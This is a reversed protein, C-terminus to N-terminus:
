TIRILFALSYSECLRTSDERISRVQCVIVVSFVANVSRDKRRHKRVMLKRGFLRSFRSFDLNSLLIMSSYVSQYINQSLLKNNNNFKLISYTDNEVITRIPYMTHTNITKLNIFFFNELVLINMLRLLPSLGLMILIAPKQTKIAKTNKIGLYVFAGNLSISSYINVAIEKSTPTLNKKRLLYNINPMGTCM